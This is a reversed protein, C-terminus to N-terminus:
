QSDTKAVTATPVSLSQEMNEVIKLAGGRIPSAEADEPIPTAAPQAKPVIPAAIAPAAAAPTASSQGDTSVASTARGNDSQPASNGDHLLENFYARWSDDVLDPNNRYRELLSQVYTANAGFEEAIVESFDAKQPESV